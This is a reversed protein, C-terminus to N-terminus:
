IAQIGTFKAMERRPRLDERGPGAWNAAWVRGRGIEEAGTIAQSRRRDDAIVEIALSAGDIM